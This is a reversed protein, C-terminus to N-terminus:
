RSEFLKQLYSDINPLLEAVSPLASSHKMGFKYHHYVFGQLPIHIVEGVVRDRYHVLLSHSIRTHM